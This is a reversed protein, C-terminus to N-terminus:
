RTWGTLLQARLAGPDSTPAECSGRLCVYATAKGGRAKKGELAPAQALLAPAAGEEPVDLHVSWSPALGNLVALLPARAEPAGALVVEYFPGADLLAADLWSAMGLGAQRAADADAALAKVAAEVDNGTMAALRLGTSVALAVGVPEESDYRDVRRELPGGAPTSYFGGGERAFRARYAKTLAIARELYRPDIEALTLYAGALAAYDDLVAEGTLTGENSSRALREAGGHRDWLYDAARAAADRYRADGTALYGRALADIALANWSTVVKRDHTPAVRGKRLELLKARIADWRKSPTRATLVNAGEFNGADTASTIRAVDDAEAGFQARLEAMTFVYYAGEKGGSDADLSALFAGDPLRMTGLLFDLTHTAVALDRAEGFAAHAELFLRALSANVYLMKEFHPVTWTADVTYRFFGGGVHDFLGGTAMADLTKRVPDTFPPGWKRAAHLLFTWRAPSPFKMRGRMGGQAEDVGALSREALARIEGPRLPDGSRAPEIRPATRAELKARNEAFERTAKGLVDLLQAKPLYTGGFFPTLKPTLLVTMPWGGSGNMAQVAEMFTADVDPREERDVKIAVFSANIVSAVDDSEFSEKAMVHCWHCSSYGISLFIPRDLTRALALAEDGWPHWDVPNHAHERLYLSGQGVLHNGDRRIEATTPAPKPRPKAKTSCAATLVLLVLWARAHM